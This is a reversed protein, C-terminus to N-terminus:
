TAMHIQTEPRASRFAQMVAGELHGLGFGFTRVV